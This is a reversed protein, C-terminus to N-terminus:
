AVGEQLHEFRFAGQQDQGGAAGALSRLVGRGEGSLAEAQDPVLQRFGPASLDMAMHADVGAQVVGHAQAMAANRRPLATGAHEDGTM